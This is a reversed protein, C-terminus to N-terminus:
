PPKSGAGRTSLQEVTAELREAFERSRRDPDVSPPRQETFSRVAALLTDPEAVIAEAAPLSVVLEVQHDDGHEGFARRRPVVIPRRGLARAALFSSTGGHIVVVRADTMRRELEEPSFRAHVECHPLAIVSPGVQAVVSERMERAVEDAARLLRDFSQHHTGVVVLIM